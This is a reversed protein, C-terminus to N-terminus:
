FLLKNHTKAHLTNIYSNQLSLYSPIEAELSTNIKLGYSFNRNMLIMLLM